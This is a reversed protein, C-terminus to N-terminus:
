WKQNGTYQKDKKSKGSRIVKETDESKEGRVYFQPYEHLAHYYLTPVFVKYYSPVYRIKYFFFFNESVSIM